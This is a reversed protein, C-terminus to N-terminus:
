DRLAGVIDGRAAHWAPPMGGFLGMFVAFLVATIVV